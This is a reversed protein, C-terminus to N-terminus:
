MPTMGSPRSTFRSSLLRFDGLTEPPYDAGDIARAKKLIPELTQDILQELSTSQTTPYALAQRMSVTVAWVLLPTWQGVNDNKFIYRLRLPNEDLFIRAAGAANSEITYAAEVGEEGTALIRLFDSPLVYQFSWDFAPVILAGTGDAEPSLVVRRRCCNWPHSSLVYDRVFPYLNVCLRQRDSLDNGSGDLSDITQAGLLLLANSCISVDTAM